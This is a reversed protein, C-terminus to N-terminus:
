INFTACGVLGKRTHEQTLHETFKKLLRYKNETNSLFEKVQPIEQSIEGIHSLLPTTTKARETRDQEKLSYKLEDTYNDFM